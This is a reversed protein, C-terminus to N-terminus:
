GCCRPRPIARIASVVLDHLATMLGTADRDGAQTGSWAAPYAGVARGARGRVPAASARDHRPCRRHRRIRRNHWWPGSDPGRQGGAAPADEDFPVMAAFRARIAAIDIMAVGVGPAAARRCPMLGVFEERLEAARNSTPQRNAVQNIPGPQAMAPLSGPSRDLSNGMAHTIIKNM